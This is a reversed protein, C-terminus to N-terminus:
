ASTRWLAYQERPSEVWHGALGGDAARVVANVKGQRAASRDLNDM